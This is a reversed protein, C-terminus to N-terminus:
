DQSSIGFELRLEWIDIGVKLSGDWSKFEVIGVGLSTVIWSSGFEFRLEWVVIGVKLSCDWSRFEVIGVGM